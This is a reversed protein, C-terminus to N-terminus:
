KLSVGNICYWNIGIAVNLICKSTLKEPSHTLVLIQQEALEVSMSDKVPGAFVPCHYNNTSFVVAM